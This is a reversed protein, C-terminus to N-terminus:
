QEVLEVRRNKARGDETKNSAVPALPGVGAAHLRAASVRYKSVLAAVVADARQKSLTMNSAFGGVNDTHGVVHLKLPTNAALLKSIETLTAESEPKLESKGTDFYIGYISAHGSQAIDNALDAANVTVEGVAMPKVEVITLWTGAEYQDQEVDLAVYADGSPRALKAALYRMPQQCNFCWDGTLCHRYGGEFSQQARCTNGSCQYLVQFGGKTLAELYSRQIELTSRSGPTSYKFSTVKGELHQTKTFKDQDVIQGLPLEFEDFEVAKYELVDSGPFRSVLPHDKVNMQASAQGALLLVLAAAYLFLFRPAM